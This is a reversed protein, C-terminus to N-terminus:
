YNPPLPPYYGEVEEDIWNDIQSLIKNKDKPLVGALPFMNSVHNIRLIIKKNSCINSIIERMEMLLEKSSLLKIKGNQVARDYPSGPFSMTTLFSLYTPNTQSVIDATEFIHKHSLATGGVGLMAITSLKWGAATIKECASVMEAKTNGKVILKLIDDAGSELGLYGLFM